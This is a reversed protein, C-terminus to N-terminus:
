LSKSIFKNMDNVTHPSSISEDNLCIYYSHKLINQLSSLNYEEELNILEKFKEIVLGSKM